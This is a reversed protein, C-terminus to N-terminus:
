PIEAGSVPGVVSLYERHSRPRPQDWHQYNVAAMDVFPYQLAQTRLHVGPNLLVATLGFPLVRWEGAM